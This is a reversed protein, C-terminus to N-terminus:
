LKGSLLAGGQSGPDSPYMFNDYTIAQYLDYGGGQGAHAGGTTGRTVSAKGPSIGPGNDTCSISSTFAINVYEATISLTMVNIVSSAIDVTNMAYLAMNGIFSSIFNQFPYGTIHMSNTQVNLASFGEINGNLLIENTSQL